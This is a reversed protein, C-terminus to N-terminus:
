RLPPETTGSTKSFAREISLISGAVTRFGGEVGKLREPSPEEVAPPLM